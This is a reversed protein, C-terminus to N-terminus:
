WLGLPCKKNKSRVAMSLPCKCKGCYSGEIEKFDDKIFVTFISNKNFKCGNCIEARQKALKETVESKLMYNEWGNLIDKIM